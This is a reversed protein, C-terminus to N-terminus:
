IDKCVQNENEGGNKTGRKPFTVGNKEAREKIQYVRQKSVGIVNAAETLNMGKQLLAIARFSNDGITREELNECLGLRYVSSNGKFMAMVTSTALSYKRAVEEANAGGDMERIINDRRAWPQARTMPPWKKSGRSRSITEQKKNESKDRVSAVENETETSM